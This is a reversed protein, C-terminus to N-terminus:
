AQWASLTPSTRSIEPSRRWVAAAAAAVAGGALVRRWPVTSPALFLLAALQAIAVFLALFHVLVAVAITGARRGHRRSRREVAQVYCVCSVTVVLLVLSYARAEQAYRV